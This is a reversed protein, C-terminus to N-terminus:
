NGLTYFIVDISHIAQSANLQWTSPGIVFHVPWRSALQKEVSRM